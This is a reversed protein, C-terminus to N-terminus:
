HKLIDCLRESYNGSEHCVGVMKGRGDAYMESHVVEANDDLTLFPYMM